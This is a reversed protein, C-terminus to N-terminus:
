KPIVSCHTRLLKLTRVDLMYYIVYKAKVWLSANIGHLIFAPNQTPSLYPISLCNDIMRGPAVSLLQRQQEKVPLTLSWSLASSDLTWPLNLPPGAGLGSLVSGIARFTRDYGANQCVRHDEFSVFSSNYRRVWWQVLLAASYTARTRTVLKLNQISVFIM